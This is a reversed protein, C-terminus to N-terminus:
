TLRLFVEIGFLTGNSIPYIQLKNLHLSWGTSLTFLPVLQWFGFVALLGAPAWHKLDAIAIQPVAVALLAAISVFLGYWFSYLLWSVISGATTRPLHNRSTRLQAWTIAKVQELM